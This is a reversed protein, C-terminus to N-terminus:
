DVKPKSIFLLIKSFLYMLNNSRLIVKYSDALRPDEEFEVPTTQTEISRVATRTNVHFAVYVTLISSMHFPPAFFFFHECFYNKRRERQRGRLWRWKNNCKKGWGFLSPGFFNPSDAAAAGSREYIQAVASKWVKHCRKQSHLPFALSFISM